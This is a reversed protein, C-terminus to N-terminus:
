RNNIYWNITKTLGLSINTKPKWRMIKLMKNNNLVKRKVGSFNQSWRLKIRKDLISKIIESYKKITYGSGNSINIVDINKNIKIIKYIAKCLDEVFLTDRIEKGSGWLNVFKKRKLKAQYIKKIISSIFHANEDKFNDKPGYLNPIILCTSNLKNEFKNAKAGIIFGLKSFSTSLSSRDPEGYFLQEERFRGKISSSYICSNCLLILKKVKTKKLALFLNTLMAFNEHFITAPYDLNYKVGGSKSACHVVYDPKINKIKKQIQSLNLLNFNDKGFSFVKCNKSKLFVTLNSGVFGKAGTILVKIKRKM